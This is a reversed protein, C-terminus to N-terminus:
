KYTAFPLKVLVFKSAKSSAFYCSKFSKQPEANETYHYRLANWYSNLFIHFHDNFQVYLM